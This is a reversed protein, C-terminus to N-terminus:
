HDGGSGMKNACRGWERGQDRARSTAEFAAFLENLVDKCYIGDMSDGDVVRYVGFFHSATAPRIVTLGSDTVGAWLIRRHRDILVICLPASYTINLGDARADNSFVNQALQDFLGGTKIWLVDPDDFGFTRNPLRSVIWSAGAISEGVSYKM